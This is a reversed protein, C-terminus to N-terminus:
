RVTTIGSSDPGFQSAISITPTNIILYCTTCGIQNPTPDLLYPRQFISVVTLSTNSQDIELFGGNVRDLDDNSLPLPQALGTAAFFPLASLAGFIRKM